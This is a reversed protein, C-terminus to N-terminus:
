HQGCIGAGSLTALLPRGVGAGTAQCVLIMRLKAALCDWRVLQIGAGRRGRHRQVWDSTPGGGWDVSRDVLANAESPGTSRIEKRCTRNLWSVRTQTAPKQAALRVSSSSSRM